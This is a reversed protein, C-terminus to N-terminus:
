AGEGALIQFPDVGEKDEQSVLFIWNHRVVKKRVHDEMLEDVQDALEHQNQDRLVTSILSLAVPHPHYAQRLRTHADMVETGKADLRVKAEGICVTVIRRGDALEFAIIDEGRMPLGPHDAYRLKFVPMAYGHRQRLHESAVVEGFNGKRSRDNRPLRR